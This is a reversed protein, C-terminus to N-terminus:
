RGIDFDAHMVYFRTRGRFCLMFRDELRVVVFARSSVHAACSYGVLKGMTASKEGSVVRNAVLKCKQM